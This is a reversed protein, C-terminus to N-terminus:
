CTTLLLCYLTTLTTFHVISPLKLMFSTRLLLYYYLLLYYATLLLYYTTLLLHPVKLMFSTRFPTNQLTAFLLRSLTRVFTCRPLYHASLLSCTLLSYHATPLLFYYTTLLPYHAALLLCHVPPAGLRRTHVPRPTLYSPLTLTICQYTDDNLVAYIYPRKHHHQQDVNQFTDFLDRSRELLGGAWLSSGEVHDYSSVFWIALGDGFLFPSTGSARLEMVISWETESFLHRNTIWGKQGQKEATLRIFSRHVQASGGTDWNEVARNGIYENINEHPASFSYKEEIDALSLAALLLMRGM